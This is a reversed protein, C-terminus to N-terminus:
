AVAKVSLKNQANSPGPMSKKKIPVHKISPPNGIARNSQGLTLLGGFLYVNHNIM